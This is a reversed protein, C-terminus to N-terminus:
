TGSTVIDKIYTVKRPLSALPLVCFSNKLSIGHFINKKLDCNFLSLLFEYKNYYSLQLSAHGVAEILTQQLTRETAMFLTSNTSM